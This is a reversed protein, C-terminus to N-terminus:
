GHDTEERDRDVRRSIESEFGADTPKFYTRDVGLYDQGAAGEPDLHPNQYEKGHGLTKAGAYHGDRLHKPVPVTRGEKVDSMASWIAQASANSKPCTALYIVLESLTLQCEPMGIRETILWASAAMQIAQPSALGIDESALIALRRCIFRPDEGSELMTALWYIAADPDSGRISKILASAHDFHGDGDRDYRLAKAQISQEAVELDVQISAESGVLTTQSGVAIELANLARRADGDSIRIWHDIAADDVHLDLTGFGRDDDVANEIILRIDMEGLPEFQFLTSRSILASNVSFFPNETTAGILIVLGAEVDSLLVDQQNRAFRHIEDLFLITRGEDTEIRRRAEDLISRIDKVGVLAANAQVYHCGTHGAIVGALATKGTGPPGWFLVSSLRDAILMRTLLQDPGLFQRQGVFEDLTRPRM